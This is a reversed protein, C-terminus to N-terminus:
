LKKDSININLKALEDRLYDSLAYNKDARLKTRLGSILDLLKAENNEVNSGVEMTDCKFDFGLVDEVMKVCEAIEKALKADGALVSKGAFKSLKIVEAIALPTNFDDNMANEFNLKIEELEANKIHSYEGSALKKINAFNENIKQYTNETAKLAEISFDVPKRYSFQLIFFRVIMPDFKKFLDELTIFNGLSKGMKTGDVTILNNHMFYNVFACGNAVESQAIESEHHPFINDLGGGHIDFTNGLFKKSIVSCEVHWGPYGVGWPSNWRMIHGGVASKWLAFDEPNQKDDALEIREGSLNNELKRGSLKGYSSLKHVSFYVNGQNTVYAYGKDIIKQIFEIMEPIFGTARASISPRKVNLMDMYHFYEVEYRYALEFPDVNEKKAQKVIKDEGDDSDGVLHGVDTINQVYKVKHGTYELYRRVVDFNVYSRAHGVHPPGYVTPGCVYMGVKGQEIPKFLDKKRTFSNYIFLDM